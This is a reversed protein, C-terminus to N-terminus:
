SFSIWWNPSSRSRWAKSRKSVESPAVLNGASSSRSNYTASAESELKVETKVEKRKKPGSSPLSAPPSPQEQQQLELLWRQQQQLTAAPAAQSPMAPSASGEWVRLMRARDSESGVPLGAQFDAQARAHGEAIRRGRDWDAMDQIVEQVVQPAAAAPTAAADSSSAAGASGSAPEGECAGGECAGRAAEGAAILQRLISSHLQRWPNDEHANLADMVAQLVPMWGAAEATAAMRSFMDASQLAEELVALAEKELATRQEARKSKRAKESAVGRSQYRPNRGPQDAWDPRPGDDPPWRFLGKKPPPASAPDACLLLLLAVTAMAKAPMSQSGVLRLKPELQMLAPPALMSSVSACHVHCM